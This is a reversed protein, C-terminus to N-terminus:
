IVARATDWAIGRERALTEVQVALEHAADLLGDPAELDAPDIARGEADCARWFADHATYVAATIAEMTQERTVSDAPDARAKSIRAFIAARSSTMQLIRAEAPTAGAAQLAYRYGRGARAVDTPLRDVYGCETLRRLARSLAARTSNTRTQGLAALIEGSVLPRQAATMVAFIRSQLHGLRSRSM